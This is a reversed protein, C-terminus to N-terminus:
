IAHWHLMINLLHIISFVTSCLFITVALYLFQDHNLSASFVVGSYRKIIVYLREKTALIEKTGFFMHEKIFFSM